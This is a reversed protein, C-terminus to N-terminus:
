KQIAINRMMYEAGNKVKVMYMGNSLKSLDLQNTMNDRITATHVRQGLTNYVEVLLGGKANAGNVEVTLSGATPNPFLSIARVMAPSSATVTSISIDDLYMNFQDAASYVHFGVYYNGTTAPTIPLVQGAATGGTSLTFTTNTINENRWLTNTQSAANAATGYKVELKESTGDVAAKYKFSLQYTSGARLFLAPTYVWDDAAAAANYVYRLQNPASAAAGSNADSGIVAWTRNDNNDNSVTIGCPLTGATVGDFGESYPFATIIPPQCVTTFQTPGSLSSQDTAGCNSRIYVDYTVGSTLGTLNIPSTAASISTGGTAPNFGRPGYIVTYGTGNAVGTFSVAASTATVSGVSIATPAFCTPVPALTADLALRTRLTTANVPTWAGGSTQFYFTNTRLPEEFQYAVGVSGSVEQLAVYFDGSVLPNPVPITVTGATAPRSLVGSTYLVAGPAGNAGTADLVVVRYTSTTGASALFTARVQSLSAAQANKYKVALSGGPNAASVGVSGFFAQTADVYAVQDTTVQQTYPLSNNSNDDDAPVSVTLNNTGQALTSPYADFTVLQTAGPALTAITKTSTFTNAGSVTLTVPINTLANTGSNTVATAVTHPLSNPVALKGLTHITAVSADNPQAARFRYTRGADPLVANQAAHAAYYGTNNIVVVNQFVTSSWAATGNKSTLSLDAPDNSSGKLGTLFFQTTAPNGSSTWTGYVFEINNTGEYLKVQFQMTRFQSPVPNAGTIAKDSLNEFQITCVRSGAAGTTSVRFETPSATQDAAGTLDVGTAPGIVNQDTNNILINVDNAATAPTAGLKIFGNTNLTFQTFTAGNYSFSFGIDQAASSADDLNATSIVTGATGLDTYTGAVNQARGSTYPLATIRQAVPPASLELQQHQRSVVPRQQAHATWSLGLLGALGLLRWHNGTPTPYAHKM